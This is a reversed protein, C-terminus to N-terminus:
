ALASRDSWRTASLLGTVCTFWLVLGSTDHHAFGEQRYSHDRHQRQACAYRITTSVTAITIVAGTIAAARGTVLATRDAIVFLDITIAIAAIIALAVIARGARYDTCNSATNEAIDDSRAAGFREARDKAAACAGKGSPGDIPIVYAALLMLFPAPNEM